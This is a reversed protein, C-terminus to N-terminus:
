EAGLREEIKSLADASIVVNDSELLDYVTVKSGTAIRVYPLNRASLKLNPELEGTVLLTTGELGLTKLFEIMAKTKPEAIVLQDVFHAEGDKIREGLAKRLAVRRVRKNVKKSYDRPKPGFVIGGGRWIPSSVRGVRARGTGKQRWPKKGSAAVEARTKTSHTGARQAARYAVVTDHVTQTKSNDAIVEFGLERESVVAGSKDKISIKM